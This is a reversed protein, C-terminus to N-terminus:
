SRLKADFRASLIQVLSAVVSDTEEDTLTKRTDQMLVRFALSKKGLDVGKGRYVDFLTLDAVSVPLQEQLADLLTGVEIKEDVIVAIDRRVPPFRSVESYASVARELLAPLDMEFLIAPAPLAYKQQWKPHLAGIWGVTKGDLLIKASQGPHLAPHAAVEFQLVAPHFLAEVDAKVDYFDVNRAAEGWQEAFASGYCLGGIRQPQDYGNEGRSFCRGTEFLRVREQKRNLNFVLRDLLGGFLTSRMVSMQSAIPNLLRVPQSNGALDAEWAEEVFSYSVIEQYDRSALLTKVAHVSRGTEPQPLIRLPGTPPNEPLQDYGHLRAVEEIFDEEISLDFRHSPPTIEFVGSGESFDFHLRRLLEAIRTDSLDIGLIRRVREGRLAVKERSPLQACAEVVPGAQGGCIELILATARELARPALEFDVGREYRYSSDSGFGLRRSKGAIVAPNFYASELFVDTTADAVSSEAGGMIGALALAKQDDSIVLMDAQLTITQDNLLKLQEGDRAFRPAITGSIKAADFAHMPQGLELLLYNTVDVLASISRLGSRELRKVLWAPTAAQANVGCIMRGVYRPCAQPADLRVGIQKQSTVPVAPIEPHKLAAGTIAAVERAVGYVSLCDSRNPTLKLTFLKDDLDLYTRISEGVPADTPLLLLGSSEEALGLEKASCLMGFSEVGRLKAQKIEIGPLKAGVLACPVKAGVAVNPAGCVIQLAAGSGADVKCVNLRDAQPHKTVELVQAVVLKEFPAAVPELAEVELGAMTLEHALAASDLSPDVFTRLWNESFKM